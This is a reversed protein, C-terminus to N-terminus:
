GLDIHRLKLSRAVSSAKTVVALESLYSAVTTKIFINLSAQVDRFDEPNESTIALVAGYLAFL